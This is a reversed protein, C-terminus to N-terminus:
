VAMLLSNQRGCDKWDYNSIIVEYSKQHRNYDGDSRNKSIGLRLSYRWEVVKINFDKYAERIWECDNYSMLFKSNHKKMLDALLAHDFNNHGFYLNTSLNKNDKFYPPDLYLFENNHRPISDKFHACEFQMNTKFDLLKKLKAKFSHEYKNTYESYNYPPSVFRSFEHTVYFDLAMQYPTATIVEENKIQKLCEKYANYHKKYAEKNYGKGVGAEAILDEAMREANNPAKLVNYLNVLLPNFDYAKNVKIGLENECYLEFSLGGCFISSMEKVDPPMHAALIEVARTKGGAYRLPPRMKQLKM